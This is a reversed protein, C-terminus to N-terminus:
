ENCGAEHGIVVDTAAEGVSAPTEPHAMLAGRLESIKGAFLDRCFAADTAPRTCGTIGAAILMLALAKM